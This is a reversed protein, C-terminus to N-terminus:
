EIKPIGRRAPPIDVVYCVGLSHNKSVLRENGRFLSIQLKSQNDQATSFVESDRCPTASETKLLPTFVGGITELGVNEVLLGGDGVAPSNRELVIANPVVPNQRCSTLLIIITLFYRAKRNMGCVYEILRGVGPM